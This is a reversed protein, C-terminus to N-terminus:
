DSSSCFTCVAKARQNQNTTTKCRTSNVMILLLRMVPITDQSLRTKVRSNGVPQDEFLLLGPVPVQFHATIDVRSMAIAAIGAGLKACARANIMM